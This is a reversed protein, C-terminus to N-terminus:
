QSVKNKSFCDSCYVPRNNRPQFPLETEKGCQSCVAPYMQRQSSANGGRSSRENKKSQRCTPCRKPENLFGKSKYFEQDTASFTFDRGCDACQLTKDEFSM